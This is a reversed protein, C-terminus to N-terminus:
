EPEDADEEPASGTPRELRGREPPEVVEGSGADLPVNDEAREADREAEGPPRKEVAQGRRPGRKTVEGQPKPM